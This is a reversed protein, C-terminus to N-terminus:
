SLSLLLLANAQKSVPSGSVFKFYAGAQKLVPLFLRIHGMLACQDLYAFNERPQDIYIEFIHFLITKVSNIM